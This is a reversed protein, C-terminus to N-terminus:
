VNSKHRTVDEQNVSIHTCADTPLKRFSGPGSTARQKTCRLLPPFFACAAFAILWRSVHLAPCILTYRQWKRARITFVCKSHHLLCKNTSLKLQFTLFVAPFLCSFSGHSYLTGLRIDAAAHSPIEM